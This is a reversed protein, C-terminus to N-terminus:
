WMWSLNYSKRSCSASSSVVISDEQRDKDGWTSAGEQARGWSKVHLTYPLASHAPAAIGMDRDCLLGVSPTPMPGNLQDSWRSPCQTTELGLEPQHQWDLWFFPSRCFLPNNWHLRHLITKNSLSCRAEGLGTAPSSLSPYNHFLLTSLSSWKSGALCVSILLSLSSLSQSHIEPIRHSWPKSWSSIRLFRSHFYAAPSSSSPNVSTPSGGPIPPLYGQERTLHEQWLIHPKPPIKKWCRRGWSSSYITEETRMECMIWTKSVSGVNSCSLSPPIPANGLM